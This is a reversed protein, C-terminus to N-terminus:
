QILSSHTMNFSTLSSANLGGSPRNTEYKNVLSNMLRLENRLLESLDNASGAQRGSGSDDDSSSDITQECLSDSSLIVKSEVYHVPIPVNADLFVKDQIEMVNFLFEQEEIFTDTDDTVDVLQHVFCITAEM